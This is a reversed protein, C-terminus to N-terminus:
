ARLTWGTAKLERWFRRADETSHTVPAALTPEEGAYSSWRQTTVTGNSSIRFEVGHSGEDGPTQKDFFSSTGLRWGAYQVAARKAGGITKFVRAPKSPSCVFEGSPDRHGFFVEFRGDKLSEIVTYRAIEADTLVKDM